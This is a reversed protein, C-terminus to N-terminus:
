QFEKIREQLIWNRPDLELAHQIVARAEATRGNLHLACAYADMGDVNDPDADVIRKAVELAFERDSDGLYDRFEYISIPIYAGLARFEEDTALKVAERWAGIFQPLSKRVADHQYRRKALLTNNQYFSGLAKWGRFRLERSEDTKVLQRLDEVARQKQSSGTQRDYIAQELEELHLTRLALSKGDPDLAHMAAIQEGFGADDGIARLRVALQFRLDIDEPKSAVTERLAALTGKGSEVRAVEALWDDVSMVDTFGVELFDRVSGDPELFVLKPPRVANYREAVPDPRNGPGLVSLQFCLYPELATAARPDAELAAKLVASPRNWSAWFHIYVPRSEKKALALLEDLSGEFWPIGPAEQQIPTNALAPLALAATAAFPLLKM